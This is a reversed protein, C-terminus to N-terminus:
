HGSSSSGLPGIFSLCGANFIADACGPKLIFNAPMLIFDPRSMKFTLILNQLHLTSNQFSSHPKSFKTYLQFSQFYLKLFGALDQLESCLM